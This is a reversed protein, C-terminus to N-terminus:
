LSLDGRHSRVTEHRSDEATITALAKDGFTMGNGDPLVFSSITKLRYSDDRAAALVAGRQEKWIAAFASFTLPEAAGSTATAQPAACASRFSGDRIATRIREAEADAETKGEIRRGVEGDLSFRYHVDGHKYNFHWPHPCKPWNKRACGCRKRIGDNRKRM